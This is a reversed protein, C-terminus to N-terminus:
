FILKNYFQNANLKITTKEAKQEKLIRHRAM